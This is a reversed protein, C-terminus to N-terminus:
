QPQLDTNTLLVSRTGPSDSKFIAAEILEVHQALPEGTFFELYRCYDPLCASRRNVKKPMDAAAFGACVRITLFRLWLQQRKPRVTKNVM